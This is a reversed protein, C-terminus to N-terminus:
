KKSFHNLKDQTWGAAGLVKELDRNLRRRRERVTESPGHDPIIQTINVKCRSKEEDLWTIWPDDSHESVLVGVRAVIPAMDMRPSAPRMQKSRSSTNTASNAQIDVSWSQIDARSSGQVFGGHREVDFTLYPPNWTLNVARYIHKDKNFGGHNSILLDDWADYLLSRVTGEDSIPGVPSATLTSALKHLATTM